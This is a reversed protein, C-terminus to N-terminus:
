DKNLNFNIMKNIRFLTVFTFFLRTFHNMLFIKGLIAIFEM